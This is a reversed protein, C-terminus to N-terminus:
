RCAYRDHLEIRRECVPVTILDDQYEAKIEERGFEAGLLFTILLVAIIAGVRLVAVVAGRTIMPEPPLVPPLDRGLM